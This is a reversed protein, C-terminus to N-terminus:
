SAERRRLVLFRHWPNEPVRYTREVDFGAAEAAALLRELPTGEAGVEWFHQSGEEPRWPGRPIPPRSLELTRESARYFRAMVGTAASWVVGGRDGIGAALPTDPEYGAAAM